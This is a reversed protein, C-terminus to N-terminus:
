IVPTRSLPFLSFLLFPIIFLLELFNRLVLLYTQGAHHDLISGYWVMNHCKPTTMDSHYWSSLIYCYLSYSLSVIDEFKQLFIIELKSRIEM